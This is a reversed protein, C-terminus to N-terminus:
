TRDAPARCAAVFALGLDSISAGDGTPITLDHPVAYGGRPRPGQRAAARERKDIDNVLQRLRLDARSITCLRLRELNDFHVGVVGAIKSDNLDWGGVAALQHLTMGGLDTAALADLM